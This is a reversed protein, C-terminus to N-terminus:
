AEGRGARPYGPYRNQRCIFAKNRRTKVHSAFLDQFLQFLENSDRM